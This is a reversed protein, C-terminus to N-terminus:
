RVIGSLIAIPFSVNGATVIFAFAAAAYRRLANYRPHNLGLTQFLSWVGHYLHFGLALNAVIYVLAVLPNALGTVVNHYANHKEVVHGDMVVETPPQFDPHVTGFTLHLLHYIIFLLIIVGGWRMTRVAYDAQVYRHKVYSKGRAAKAQRWVAWAAWMHVLVAALLVIRAVWLLGSHPFFPAGLERLGDAYQNFAEEGMYMKLNGAMHVFVFGFLVIGSVAMLAKKGLSSETLTKM